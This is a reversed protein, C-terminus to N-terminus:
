KNSYVTMYHTLSPVPSTSASSVGGCAAAANYSLKVWVSGRAVYYELGLFVTGWFHPFM